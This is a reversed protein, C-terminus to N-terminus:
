GEYRYCHPLEHALVLWCGIVATSPAVTAGDAATRRGGLCTPRHHVVKEERDLRSKRNRHIPISAMAAPTDISITAM